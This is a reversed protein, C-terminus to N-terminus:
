CKNRAVSQNYTLHKAFLMLSKSLLDDNLDDNSQAPWKASRTAQTASPIQLDLAVRLADVPQSSLISTVMPQRHNGPKPVSSAWCPSQIAKAKQEFEDNGLQEHDERQMGSM